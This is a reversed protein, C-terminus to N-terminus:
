DQSPIPTPTQVSGQEALALLEQRSSIGLRRYIRGTYTRVTAITLETCRSIEKDSMGMMLLKAVQALSPPLQDLLTSPGNMSAIRARHPHPLVLLLRSGGLELHCIVCYRRFSKSGPAKVLSSLWSPPTEFVSQAAQNAFVVNGGTSLLYAPEEFAEILQYIDLDTSGDAEVESHGAPKYQSHKTMAQGWRFPMSM